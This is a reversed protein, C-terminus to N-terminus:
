SRCDRSRVAGAVAPSAPPALAGGSRMRVWIDKDNLGLDVETAAREDADFMPWVKVTKLRQSLYADDAFSLSEEALLLLDLRSM